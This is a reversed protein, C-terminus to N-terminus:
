KRRGAQEGKDIMEQCVGGLDPAKAPLGQRSGAGAGSESSSKLWKRLYLTPYARWRVRVECNCVELLRGEIQYTMEVGGEKAAEITM